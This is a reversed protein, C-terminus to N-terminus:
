SCRTTGSSRETVAHLMVSKVLAYAHMVNGAKLLKKLVEADHKCNLQCNSPFVNQSSVHMNHAQLAGLM